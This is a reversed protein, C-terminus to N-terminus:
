SSNGRSSLATYRWGIRGLQNYVLVAVMLVLFSKTQLVLGYAAGPCVREIFITCAKGGPGM